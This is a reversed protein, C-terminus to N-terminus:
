APCGDAFVVLPRPKSEVAPHHEADLRLVCELTGEGAPVATAVDGTMGHLPHRENALNDLAAELRELDAVAHSEGDCAEGLYARSVEAAIGLLLARPMPELDQHVLRARTMAAESRAQYGRLVHFPMSLVPDTARPEEGDIRLQVVIRYSGDALGECPLSVEPRARRLDGVDTSGIPEKASLTAGTADRVAVVFELKGPQAVTFPLFLTVNLNRCIENRAEPDVVEPLLFAGITARLVFALDAEVGRLRALARAVPVFPHGRDPEALQEAMAQRTEADRGISEVFVQDRLRELYLYGWRERYVPGQAAGAVALATM